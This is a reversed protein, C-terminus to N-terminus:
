SSSANSSGCDDIADIAELIKRADKLSLERDIFVRYTDRKGPVQSLIPTTPIVSDPDARLFAPMFEEEPVGFAKSMAVRFSRTPNRKGNVFNSTNDPGFRKNEPMFTAAARTLDARTWTREDMLRKLNRAMERLAARYNPDDHSFRPM